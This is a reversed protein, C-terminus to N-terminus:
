LVVCGDPTADLLSTAVRAHVDLPQNGPNAMGRGIQASPNSADFPPRAYSRESPAKGHAQHAPDNLLKSLVIRSVHRGAYAVVGKERQERQKQPSLAIM